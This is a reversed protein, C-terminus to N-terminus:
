LFSYIVRCHNSPKVISAIGLIAIIQNIKCQVNVTLRQNIPQAVRYVQTPRANRRPLQPATQRAICETNFLGLSQGAILLQRTLALRALMYRFRIHLRTITM